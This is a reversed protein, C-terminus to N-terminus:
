DIFVMQGEKVGALIQVESENSLGITVVVARRRKGERIYVVSDRGIQHVARRPVLLANEISRTSITLSAGMGPRLPLDTRELSIIAQYTTIGKTGSPGPALSIVKGSLDREPFADLHIRVPQGIAVEGVDTEDIEAHIELTSLDALWILPTFGYVNEGPQPAIRMITGTFPAYIRTAELQRKAERLEMEARAVANRLQELELSPTGKMLQDFEAKAVEYAVKAEELALAEESSEADPKQAIKDYDRQAKRRAATARLLKARALRIQEESPAQLAQQLRKKQLDLTREALALAEQYSKDELNLLLQGEQVQDGVQVWIKAVRGSTQTSLQVQRHPAVQGLASVTAEITGRRVPVMDAPPHAHRYWFFGGLAGGVLLIGLVLFKKM